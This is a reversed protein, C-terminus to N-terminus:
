DRASLQGDALRLVLRRGGAEFFVSDGDMRPEVTMWAGLRAHLRIAARPVGLASILHEGSYQAVTVGSPAILTLAYRSLVNIWEDVLLVQGSQTVLVRRPGHHHPLEREWKVEGRADVLTARGLPTKWGDLTKVTLVFDTGFRRETPPLDMRDAAVLSVGVLGVM